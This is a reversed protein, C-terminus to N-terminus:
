HRCAADDDGTVDEVCVVAVDVGGWPEEVVVALVETDWVDDAADELLILLVAVKVPIAAVAGVTPGERSVPFNGARPHFAQFAYPHPVYHENAQVLM